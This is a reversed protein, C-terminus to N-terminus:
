AKKPVYWLMFKLTTRPVLDQMNVRSHKNRSEIGNM